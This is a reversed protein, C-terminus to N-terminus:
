VAPSVYGCVISVVPFSQSVPEPPDPPAVEVFRVWIFPTAIEPVFPRGTNSVGCAVPPVVPVAVVEAEENRTRFAEAPFRYETFKTAPAEVVNIIINLAV